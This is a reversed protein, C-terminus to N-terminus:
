NFGSDHEVVFDDFITPYGSVPSISSLRPAALALGPDMGYKSSLSDEDSRLSKSKLLCNPM